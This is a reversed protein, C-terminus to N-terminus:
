LEKIKLLQQLTKVKANLGYLYFLPKTLVVFNWFPAVVILMIANLM